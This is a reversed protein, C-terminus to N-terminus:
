PESGKRTNDLRAFTLPKFTVRATDVAPEIEIHGADTSGFAAAERDNEVLDGRAFARFDTQALAFLPLGKHQLEAICQPWEGIRNRHLIFGHSRDALM